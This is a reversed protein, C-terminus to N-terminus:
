GDLIIADILGDRSSALLLNRILLTTKSFLTKERRISGFVHSVNVAFPLWLRMEYAPILLKSLHALKGFAM